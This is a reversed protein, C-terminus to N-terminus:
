KKILIIQAQDALSVKSLFDFLDDYLIRPYTGSRLIFNRKYIASNESINIESQYEGFVSSIITKEPLVEVELNESISLLIEDNYSISNRIFIDRLLDPKMPITQRWRSFQNLPVFLRRGTASSYSKVSFDINSYIRPIIQNDPAFSYEKMQFGPLNIYEGIWKVQDGPGLKSAMYSEDSLIGSYKTKMIVNADGSLSIDIKISRIRFNDQDSYHTTNVLKGDAEMVLLADRNGTFRGLYGFPTNQSTCELWITDNDMPLCLIAHNFQNSPLDKVVQEADPGANVLAYYSEIGAIKLLAKTYNVLAKCDGYGLQDVTAADITQWGGIGLQVSVYRTRSQMYEYIIRSRIIDDDIGNILELIKNQTSLPLTDRGSNLYFNWSSFDEWTKMSGPREDISFNDPAIYVVPLVHTLPVSYIQPQLAPINKVEWKYAIQNTENTIEVSDSLNEERYRIGFDKPITLLFKAHELSQNIATVPMWDPLNIFGSFNIEWTYEVTFPFGSIAPEYSLIRNEDFLSGSYASYDKIDKRSIKKQVIGNEDYVSGSIFKAQLFKNYHTRFNGSYIANENLISIVRTVRYVAKDIEHVTLLVEQKRVVSNSNTLLEAPIDSISYQGLVTSSLIAFILAPLLNKM